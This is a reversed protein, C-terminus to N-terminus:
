DMVDCDRAFIRRASKENGIMKLFDEVFSKTFKLTRKTSHPVAECAALLDEKKDLFYLRTAECMEDTLCFSKNYRESVEDIPVTEHPVAYPPHVFGSYDFDYPIVLLTNTSPSTVIEMNHRNSFNWDTNAIMYQFMTFLGLQEQDLFDSKLIRPEHVRGGMREALNDAPEIAFAHQVFSANDKGSDIYEVQMLHTRFSKDTLTAFLRYALFEKLLMQDYSETDRCANVWKIKRDKYGEKPFKIRIPPYYCVEKRINGRSRIEVEQVITDGPRFIEILAPQYIEEDKQKVLLKLDTTLRVHMVSDSAFLEFASVDQSIVAHSQLTFALTVVFLLSHHLIRM